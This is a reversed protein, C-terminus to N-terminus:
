GIWLTDMGGNVKGLCNLRLEQASRFWGVAGGLVFGLGVRCTPVGVRYTPVGVRYTPM